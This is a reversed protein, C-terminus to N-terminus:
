EKDRVGSVEGGLHKKEFKRRIVEQVLVGEIKSELWSIIDLYVCGSISALVTHTRTNDADHFSLISAKSDPVGCGKKRYSM